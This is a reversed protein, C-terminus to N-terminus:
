RHETVGVQQCMDLVPCTSCKPRAGTCIHKGFPVLRENIEIWYREPLVKELALMTQEPTKTQVYGWRNTVRHVHIDVSIRKEGCAVGMALNACKPGIGAFSQMVEGDCPLDGDFEEEVRKAIDRIQSAKREHFTVDDILADIRDPTTGALSAPTRAEHFLRRAAVLSVEDRTRVSLLCAILQEFPTDFGDDRLEFMAAKPYPQVAERIRDMAIDIDFARKSM